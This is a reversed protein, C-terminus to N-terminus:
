SGCRYKYTWPVHLIVPLLLRVCSCQVGIQIYKNLRCRCLITFYCIKANSLRRSLSAASPNALNRLSVMMKNGWVPKSVRSPRLQVLVEQRTNLCVIVSHQYHILPYIYPFRKGRPSTVIIKFTYKPCEHYRLHAMYFRASSIEVNAWTIGDPLLGLWLQGLDIEWYPTRPWLSNLWCGYAVTNRIRYQNLSSLKRLRKDIYKWFTSPPIPCNWLVGMM